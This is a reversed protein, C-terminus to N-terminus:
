KCVVGNMGSFQSMDLEINNKLNISTCGKSYLDKIIAVNDVYVKEEVGDQDTDIMTWINDDLLCNSLDLSKLSFESKKALEGLWYLDTISSGSVQLTTLKTLNQVGELSGLKNGNASIQTLNTLGQLPKLSSVSDNQINLIRLNIFYNFNNLIGINPCDGLYLTDLCDVNKAVDFGTVSSHSLDLTLQKTTMLEDLGSVVAINNMYEGSVSRLNKCVKVSSLTPSVGNEWNWNLIITELDSCCTLDFAEANGDAQLTKCSGPIKVRVGGSRLSVKICNSCNSLDIFGQHSLNKRDYLCFGTIEKCDVFQNCLRDGHILIGEGDHDGIYHGSYYNDSVLSITKQIKTINIDSNDISLTGLTFSSRDELDWVSNAWDELVSLDSVGTGLLHLCIVKKYEKLNNIFSISTLQECDNLDICILNKMSGLVEVIKGSTLKPNKGLRIYQLSTNGYLKELDSDTLDYNYFDKKQTDLFLLSYCNDLSYNLGCRKILNKFNDTIIFENNFKENGKLYCKVIKLCNRLPSIDVLSYEGNGSSDTNNELNIYTLETCNKLNNIDTIKNNNANLIQLDINKKNEVNDVKLGDLSSLSNNNIILGLLKDCNKLGLLDKIGSSQSILYKLNKHNELGSLSTLNSNGLVVVEYLNSFDSLSSISNIDNEQLYLYKISNKISDSFKSFSSIDTLKSRTEIDSPTFSFKGAEGGFSFDTRTLNIYDYKGFVGFYELKTLLNAKSLSSSIKEMESNAQEKTKSSDFRFYLKNLDLVDALKDYGKAETITCNDIYITQLLSCSEIGDLNPITMNKLVLNRLKRADSIGSLSTIDTVTGDLTLDKLKEMNGTTLNGSEATVGIKGLETVIQDSLSKNNNAGKAPDNPNIELEEVAGYHEGALGEPGYYYVKLDSTVGYVDQLRIYKSYETTDGGVLGEKIDKPLSSKNILYYMKGDYTIYNKTGDKLFLDKMKESLLDPNYMYNESDQYYEVYKEQIWEELIAMGNKM